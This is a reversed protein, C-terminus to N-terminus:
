YQRWIGRLQSVDGGAQAAAVVSPNTAGKAGADLLKMRHEMLVKALDRNGPFKAALALREAEQPNGPVIRPGSPSEGTDAGLSPEERSALAQVINQRESQLDAGAKARLAGADKVAGEVGQQQWHQGLVNALHQLPNSKVYHKGVMQGQVPRTYRQMMAQALKGRMEALDIPAQYEPPLAFPNTTPM